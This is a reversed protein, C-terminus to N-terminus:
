NFMWSSRRSGKLRWLSVCRSLIAALPPLSRYPVYDALVPAGAQEGLVTQLGAKFENICPGSAAAQYDTLAKQALDNSPFAVVVTGLVQEEPGYFDDSQSRSLEGDFSTLNLVACPPTLPVDVNNAARGVWGAPLDSIVLRAADTAATADEVLEQLTPTEVAEDSSGSSCAGAVIAVIALGCAVRPFARM